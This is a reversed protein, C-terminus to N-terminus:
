GGVLYEPKVRRLVEEVYPAADDLGEVRVVGKLVADVDRLSTFLPPFSGILAPAPRASASAASTARGKATCVGCPSLGM